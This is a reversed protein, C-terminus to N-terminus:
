GDSLINFFNGAGVPTLRLGIADTSSFLCCLWGESVGAEDWAVLEDLEIVEELSEVAICYESPKSCNSTFLLLPLLINELLQIHDYLCLHSKVSRFLM